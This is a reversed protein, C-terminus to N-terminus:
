CVEKDPAFAALLMTAIRHRHSTVNNAIYYSASVHRHRHSASTQCMAIDPSAICDSTIEDAIDHSSSTDCFHASTRYTDINASMQLAM